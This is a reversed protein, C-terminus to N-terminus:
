SLNFKGYIDGQAMHWIVNKGEKHGNRDIKTDTSSNACVLSETDGM